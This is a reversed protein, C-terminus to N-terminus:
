LMGEEHVDARLRTTMFVGFEGQRSVDFDRMVGEFSECFREEVASCGDILETWDVMFSWSGGMDFDRVVVYM